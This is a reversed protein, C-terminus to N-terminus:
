RTGYPSRPPRLHKVRGRSRDQGQEQWSHPLQSGPTRAPRDVEGNQGQDDPRDREGQEPPDDMDTSREIRPIPCLWHKVKFGDKFRDRDVGDGKGVVDVGKGLGTSPGVSIRHVKVQGVAVTLPQGESGESGVKGERGEPDTGGEVVVESVSMFM